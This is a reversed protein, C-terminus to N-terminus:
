RTSSTTAATPPQMAALRPRPRLADLTAQESAAGSLWRETRLGDLQLSAAAGNVDNQADAALQDKNSTASSLSQRVLLFSLLGVLAVILANVAIIKIRM